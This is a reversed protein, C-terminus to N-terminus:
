GGTRGTGAAIEANFFLVAAKQRIPGETITMIPSGGLHLHDKRSCALV